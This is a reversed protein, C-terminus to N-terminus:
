RASRTAPDLGVGQVGQLLADIASLLEAHGGVNGAIAMVMAAVPVAAVAAGGAAQHVGGASGVPNLASSSANANPGCGGGGCGSVGASNCASSASVGAAAASSGNAGMLGGARHRGDMNPAKVVSQSILSMNDEGRRRGVAVGGNSGNFYDDDTSEDDDYYDYYDDAETDNDGFDAADDLPAVNEEATSADDDDVEVVVMEHQDAANAIPKSIRWPSSNRPVWPAIIHSPM